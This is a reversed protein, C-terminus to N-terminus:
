YSMRLPSIATNFNLHHLILRRFHIAKLSDVGESFFNATAGSISIGLEGRATQLLLSETETTDLELVGDMQNEEIHLSEILGNHQQYVQARIM